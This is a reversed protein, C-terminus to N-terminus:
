DAWSPHFEAHITLAQGLKTVYIKGPEVFRNAVVEINLDFFMELQLKALAARVQAENDSHCIVSRRERAQEAEFDLIAARLSELTLEPETM